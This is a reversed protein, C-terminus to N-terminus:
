KLTINFSKYENNRLITLNIVEDKSLSFLVKELDTKTIITIDNIKTIIDNKNLYNSSAGNESVSEVIMGHELMINREKREDISLDVIDMVSIGLKGRKFDIKNFIKNAIFVAKNIPISYNFNDVANYEDDYVLKMTNLGILNGYMDFLPGGSNGSNLTADIQLMLLKYNNDLQSYIPSNVKSIIGKTATFSYDSGIPSGITLVDEGVLVERNSLSALTYNSNKKVAIVGIDELLHYGVIIAKDRKYNSYIVELSSASEIVHANTFIYAYGDSNTDESFVVGSGLYSEDGVNSIIYVSSTVNNEYVQQSTLINEKLPAYNITGNYTISENIYNNQNINTNDSTPITNLHICSCGSTLIIFSFLFSILIKKNKM